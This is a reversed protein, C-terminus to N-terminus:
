NAESLKKLDALGKEYYTGIMKDVNVFLHFAKGIFNNEGSMIWSVKTGEAVPELVFEVNASSEMPRTFDLKMKVLSSPKSETITMTGAGAEDNGDWKYIAGQGTALGEFTRKMAPDLAEFPSWKQWERYGNILPFIKEPPANITLSRAIKYDKPQLAIVVALIAVLLVLGLLIKKLM